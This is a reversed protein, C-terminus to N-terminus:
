WYYPRKANSQHSYRSEEPNGTIPTNNQGMEAPHVWKVHGDVYTRNSGRFFKPVDEAFETYQVKGGWAHNSQTGQNQNLPEWVINLDVIIM